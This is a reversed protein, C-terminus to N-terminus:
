PGGSSASSPSPLVFLTPSLPGTFPLGCQPDPIPPIVQWLRKIDTDHQNVIQEAFRFWGPSGPAPFQLPM